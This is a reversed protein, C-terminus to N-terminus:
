HLSLVGLNQRPFVDLVPFVRRDPPAYIATRVTARIPEAVFMDDWVREPTVSCKSLRTTSVTLPHGAVDVAIEGPMDEILKSGV